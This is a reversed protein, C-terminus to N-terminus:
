VVGRVISRKVSEDLTDIIQGANALTEGRRHFSWAWHVLSSRGLFTEEEAGSCLRQAFKRSSRSPSSSSTERAYPSFNTGRSSSEAVTYVCCYASVDAPLLLLMALSLFTPCSCVPPGIFFRASDFTGPSVNLNDGQMHHSLNSPYDRHKAMTIPYERFCFAGNGSSGDIGDSEINKAAPKLGKVVACKTVCRDYWVAPITNRSRRIKPYPHM